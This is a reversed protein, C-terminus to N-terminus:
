QFETYMKMIYLLMVTYLTYTYLVCTKCFKDVYGAILDLIKIWSIKKLREGTVVHDRNGFTLLLTSELTM